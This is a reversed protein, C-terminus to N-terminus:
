LPLYITRGTQSSRYVAETFEMYRVGDEFSTHTIEEDGRIANIFEEEVRWFGENKPAITIESLETDSRTGGYVQLKDVNIHLTGETGFIWVQNDPSLGNVSSLRMHVVPGSAMESLIEVHDPITIFHTKGYEDKRTKVNVKSISKVSGAPGVWRMLTEYWIGLQMTNYGSFDRSYRWHLPAESDIFGDQVVLDVSLIDGLYDDEILKKITNDIKLTLPAPVIQTVLDPKELSADLMQRAETANMAMRAETLVHKDAALAELVMTRHVYPWTGICIADTDGAQILETWNDYVTPINYEDAVRRSSELSRNSVSVIEVGDIAQFGPLHRLKTNAGAGVCGIRIVKNSM